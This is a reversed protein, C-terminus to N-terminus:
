KPIVLLQHTGESEINLQMSLNRLKKLEEQTLYDFEKKFVDGGGVESEYEGWFAKYTSLNSFLDTPTFELGKDTEEWMQDCTYSGLWEFKEKDKEPLLDMLDNGIYITYNGM